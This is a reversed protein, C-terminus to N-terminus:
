AARQGRSRAATSTSCSSRSGPARGRPGLPDAVVVRDVLGEVASGCPAADATSIGAGSKSRTAGSRRRGAPQQGLLRRRELGLRADPTSMRERRSPHGPGGGVEVEVRSAAAGGARFFRRRLAGAVEVVDGAAWRRGGLPAGPRGLGRVRARRGSQRPGTRAPPARCRGRRFTWLADGSPLVREEPASRVAPGVLRVENVAAPPRRGRRRQEGETRGDCM